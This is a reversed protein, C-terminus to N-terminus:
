RVTVQDRVDQVGRTYLATDYAARKSSRNLVTGTLTVVGNEVTVNIDDVNVNMNRDLADVITKALSEDAVTQTPVVAIKNTLGVVGRRVFALDEARTKKWFADVAGELTVWGDVVSVSLGFPYLDSDWALTDKINDQIASDTPAEMPYVVKIENLVDRVGTILWAAESAAARFSYSPVTGSLTVIGEDVTVAVKSADVRADWYLSEVVDKAITEDDKIRVNM